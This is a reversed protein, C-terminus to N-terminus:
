AREVVVVADPPLTLVGSRLQADDTSSLAVRVAQPVAFRGRAAGLNACVVLAGREMTLTSTSPAAHARCPTGHVRPRLAILARYWALVRDHPPQSREEFRLRSAEWTTTAQPDPIQDPSWGFATFERRRGERVARALAEDDHGTFYPFPSSSAWEEGMFLMPTFPGLLVLAAGVMTREISTLQHMREGRARNGVQDHTQLYGLVRWPKVEDYARGHFRNRARSFRGDYVVCRELAHAVDELSGFDAYYGDREGTLVAHLAHHFDDSWQADFGLGHATVPRVVRPDNLDSEAIVIKGLEHALRTLQELFPLASSDHLAHVADVRLGDVHLEELWMRANDLLFAHVEHAGSQDLNVARGWPTKHEDTFYPGFRDLYNGSPGLHNYVVDVVVALKRAHCADVLEMFGRTGGYATSPAFLDVGDYGWGRSGSAEIVPMLEVHTVGLDVLDDLHAICGTFTGGFAGVHLEYLVGDALPAARFGRDHWDFREDVVCSFAHPGDPQARSRPDPTAPGGDVSFAYRTGPGLDRDLSWWGGDGARLACREGPEILVDVRHQAYPAWVRPKM